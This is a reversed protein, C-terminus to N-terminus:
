DDRWWAFVHWVYHQIQASGIYADKSYNAPGGTAAIEVTLWGLESATDVLAWLCLIGEQAQVCLLEAGRLVRICRQSKIDLPYKCITKM